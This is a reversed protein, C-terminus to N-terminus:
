YSDAWDAPDDEPFETARCEKGVLQAQEAFFDKWFDKKTEPIYDMQDKLDKVKKPNVKVKTHYLRKLSPVVKARGSKCIRFSDYPEINGSSYRFKVEYPDERDIRFETVERIRVKQAAKPKNFGEDFFTKFDYIDSSKMVLTEFPKEHRAEKVVKEWDEPTHIANVNLKKQREIHSFDRDCPLFTHGSVLFRHRVTAAFKRQVLYSMLALIQFNKNQGACSDSWFVLEQVPLAKRSHMLVFTKLLATAIECSGRKADGETWLVMFAEGTSGIHVCENYVWLQRKYFAQSQSLHPTPLTQQLDFTITEKKKGGSKKIDNRLEEYGKDAKRVHLEKKTLLKQKELDTLDPNVLMACFKDCTVCTDSRPTGFGLNFEHIFIDRYLWEKVDAEPHKEKYLRFMKSLNLSPSLYKKELNENRSYHSMETPFSSIHHRISDKIVESTSKKTHKGRKDLAMGPDDARVSKLIKELRKKKICFLSMFVSQCVVIRQGNEMVSYEYVTRPKKRDEEAIRSRKKETVSILGRLFLNQKDYDQLEKLKEFHIEKNQINLYCGDSCETVVQMTANVLKNSTSTYAEFSNKLMKRVNQKWIEECRRKKKASTLMEGRDERLDVQSEAQEEREEGNKNQQEIEGGEHECENREREDESIHQKSNDRLVSCSSVQSDSITKLTDLCKGTEMAPENVSNEDGSIDQYFEPLTFTDDEKLSVNSNQSQFASM